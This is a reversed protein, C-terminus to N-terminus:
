RTNKVNKSKRRKTNWKKKVNKKELDKKIGKWEKKNHTKEKHNIKEKLQDKVVEDELDDAFDLWDKTNINM